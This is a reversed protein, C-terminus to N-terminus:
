IIITRLRVYGIDNQVHSIRKFNFGNLKLKNKESRDHELYLVARRNRICLHISSYYALFM